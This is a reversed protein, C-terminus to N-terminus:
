YIAKLKKMEHKNQEDNTIYSELSEHRDLPILKVKINKRCKWQYRKLTIDIILDVYICKIPGICTCFKHSM